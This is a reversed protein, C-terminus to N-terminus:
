ETPIPGAKKQHKRLIEPKSAIEICKQVISLFNGVDKQGDAYTIAWKDPGEEEVKFGHKKTFEDSNINALLKKQKSRWDNADPTKYLKTSTPSPLDEQLMKLVKNLDEAM